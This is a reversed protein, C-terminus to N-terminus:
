FEGALQDSKCNLEVIIDIKNFSVSKNIINFFALVWFRCMTFSDSRVPSHPWQINSLRHLRWYTPLYVKNLDFFCALELLESSTEM